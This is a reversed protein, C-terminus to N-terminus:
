QETKGADLQRAYEDADMHGLSEVILGDDDLKWSEYGYLDVAAGTGGPGTNTGTWHWEFIVREGERRVEVLEILMDPFDTMFSRATAEVEARGISPDGDNIRLVGGETYFSAYHAPDGSSWAAAYREALNEIDLTDPPASAPQCGTVAVLMLLPLCSSLVAKARLDHQM